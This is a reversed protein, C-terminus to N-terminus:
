RPGTELVGDVRRPVSWPNGSRLQPPLAGDPADQYTVPRTFRALAAAGLSTASPVTTAPWPGGHQQGWATAVGTPWSDVAVRGARPTLAALIGLLEPDHQPAAFVSSRISPMRFRSRTASM